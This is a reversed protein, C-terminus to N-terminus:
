GAERAADRDAGPEAGDAPPAAAEEGAAARAAARRDRAAVAAAFAFAAAAAAGLGVPGWTRATLLVLRAARADATFAAVQDEPMTLDADLLVREGSGTEPRLTEHRLERADVVRGSVPEVWFTRRLELWRTATVTGPRDRGLTRAPVERASDPIQTAAFEQVYRRVPLGGVEDHGDFVMLPAARIDADYFPYEDATAGAPWWLVLGAQRVARDGDVHEGCCNVAQGTTRDVVVRRDLHGIVAEGATDVTVEWVSWDPDGPSVAGRVQTRQVVEADEVTRWTATDLHDAAEDLLRMETTVTAPLVAIRDAVYFRLLLALTLLFAGAALLLVAADRRV